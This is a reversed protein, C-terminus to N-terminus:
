WWIVIDNDYKHNYSMNMFMNFATLYNVGDSFKIIQVILFNLKNVM